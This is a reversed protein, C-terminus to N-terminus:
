HFLLSFVSQAIYIYLNINMNNYIYTFWIFIYFIMYLYPSNLKSKLFYSLKFYDLTHLLPRRLPATTLFGGANCCICIRDRSQSSGMSSSIALWELIAQLIGHVSSGPPNYDMPDFLNPCPEACMCVPYTTFGYDTIHIKGKKRM